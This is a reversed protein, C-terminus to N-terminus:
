IRVGGSLTEGQVDGCLEAEAAYATRYLLKERLRGGMFTVGIPMRGDGGAPISIAPCGTLNALSTFRDSGYLDTPNEDFSGLDFSAGNTTPILLVDIKTFLDYIRQCIEAQSTKIKRYYDGNYTSSLAYTGALIRRKVESGFGSSRSKKMISAVSDGSEERVTRGYRMGDYRALNSSAEAASITLYIEEAEDLYPLDVCTVDAGLKRLTEGARVVCKLTDADVFQECGQMVGIKLGSVGDEIEDTYNVDRVTLDLTTMDRGDRGALASLVYASDRVDRTIPCVTDLSSAFETVGYRSVVGYTPKMACVGCFSAPQRASGGTDTAIAWAAMHAAVAAASGGSSGGASKTLDLPNKTAGFISKECSSGMAFEDLNTKGLVVGGQEVAREYVTACYQPMFGRLMESACTMPAGRMAINDKVAFPIGCLAPVQEGSAIMADARAAGKKALDYTEAVYANVSPNVAEVEEVYARLVEDATFERRRLARSLEVVTMKLIEHNM